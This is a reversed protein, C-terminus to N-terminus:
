LDYDGRIRPGIAMEIFRERQEATPLRHAAEIHNVWTTSAGPNDYTVLGVGLDSATWVIREWDPPDVKPAKNGIVWVYDAGRGQAHAQYVSKLDFGNKTEVEIAHLRRPEGASSRRRPDAAVVLDPHAWV